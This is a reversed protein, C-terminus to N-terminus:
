FNNRNQLIRKLVLNKKGGGGIIGKLIISKSRFLSYRAMSLIMRPNGFKCYSLFKFIM